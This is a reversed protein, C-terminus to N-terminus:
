AIKFSSRKRSTGMMKENTFALHNEKLHILFIIGRLLITIENSFKNVNRGNEM